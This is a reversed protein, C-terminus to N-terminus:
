RKRGRGFLFSFVALMAFVVFLIKGIGVASAAIGGFGFLAAILAIAFFVVAYHLM